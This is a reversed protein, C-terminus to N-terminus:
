AWSEDHMISQAESSLICIVVVRIPYAAISYLHASCHFVHVIICEAPSDNFSNKSCKNQQIEATQQADESVFLMAQQMQEFSKLRNVFNRESYIIFALTTQICKWDNKILLYKYKLTSARLCIDAM